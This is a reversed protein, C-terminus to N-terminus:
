RPLRLKRKEILSFIEARCSQVANKQTFNYFNYFKTMRTAKEKKIELFCRKIQEETMQEYIEESVKISVSLITGEEDFDANIFFMQLKRKKKLHQKLIQLVDKPLRRAISIGVRKSAKDYATRQPDNHNNYDFNLWASVRAQVSKCADRITIIGGSKEKLGKLYVPNNQYDHISYEKEIEFEQASVGSIVFVFIFLLLIKM